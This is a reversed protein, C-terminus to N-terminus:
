NLFLRRPSFENKWDNFAIPDCVKRYHIKILNFSPNQFIKYNFNGFFNIKNSVERSLSDTDITVLPSLNRKREDRESMRKRESDKV